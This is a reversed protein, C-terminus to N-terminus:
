LDSVATPQMGVAELRLAAAHICVNVIFLTIYWLLTIYFDRRPTVIVMTPETDCTAQIPAGIDM